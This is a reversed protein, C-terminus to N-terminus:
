RRYARVWESFERIDEQTSFVIIADLTQSVDVGDILVDYVEPHELGAKKGDPMKDPTISVMIMNQRIFEEFQEGQREETEKDISDKEGAAVFTGTPGIYKQYKLYTDWKTSPIVFMRGSFIDYGTEYSITITEPILNRRRLFNIVPIGHIIKCVTSKGFRRSDM